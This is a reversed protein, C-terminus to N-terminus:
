EGGRSKLQAPNAEPQVGSIREFPLEILQAHGSVIHWIRCGDSVYLSEGAVIMQM